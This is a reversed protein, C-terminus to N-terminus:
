DGEAALASADDQRVALTMVGIDGSTHVSDEAQGTNSDILLRGTVPDLRLAIITPRSAGIADASSYGGVVGGKTFNADPKFIDPM